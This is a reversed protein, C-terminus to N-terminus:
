ILAALKGQGVMADSFSIKMQRLSEGLEGIRDLEFPAVFEDIAEYFTKLNPPPLRGSIRFAQVIIMALTALSADVADCVELHREYALFVPAAVDSQGGGPDEL